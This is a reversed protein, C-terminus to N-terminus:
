RAASALVAAELDELVNRAQKVFIKATYHAFAPPPSVAPEIQLSYVVKCSAPGAEEIRWAGKFQRMFQSEVLSFDVGQTEPAAAVDIVLKFLGKFMLFRWKCEQTVEAPTGQVRTRTHARKSRCVLTRESCFTQSLFAAHSLLTLRPRRRVERTVRSTAVNTFIDPAATFDTVAEYVSSSPVALVLEGRM